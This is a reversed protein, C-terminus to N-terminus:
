DEGHQPAGAIERLTGDLWGPVAPGGYVVSGAPRPHSRLGIWGAGVVLEAGALPAADDNGLLHAVLAGAAEGDPAEMGAAFAAVRGKTAGAAARALQVAAQARSRGGATTADTLTVLRVPRGADAAYDAAARAWAADVRMDEVIGRHEALVQEWGGAPTTGFSRGAAAVVIADVPGAAQVTSRLAEGADAFSGAVEVHHCVISRTALAADLSAAILPRDTVLVCTRVQGAAPEDAAAEDAAPGGGAPGGGAPGGGVPGDFIPGFRPNSGGQSAQGTEAPVFARPIVSDLVRTLSVVDNSRVVELLRPEDVV